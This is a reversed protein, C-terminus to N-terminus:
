QSMVVQRIYRDTTEASMKCRYSDKSQSYASVLREVDCSHLAETLPRIIRWFMQGFRGFNSPGAYSYAWFLIAPTCTRLFIILRRATQRGSRMVKMIIQTDIQDLLNVLPITTSLMVYINYIYIYGVHLRDKTINM